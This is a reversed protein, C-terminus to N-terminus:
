GDLVERVKRALSTPTFPKQLLSVGPALVGHRAIAEDTYGSMFLVKLNPRIQQLQEALARGSIGPMVVDTLLLQIPDPHRAALELAGQGNSAVLVAYGLEELVRRALERVGVADEVLLITENGRPLETDVQPQDLPQTAERVRPLYIKFTAGQGEESYVWIHGGNQKVIGYVTALGLGTGKGQEKTTFFPEFLHAQVEESMGHGTDSVALLVYEGPQAELHTAVFAEDLSVNATEIMLQGGQPMADRANVALNVIIQEIQAPDAKILWLDPKLSTKMQIYEGIIRSLMGEMKTVIQNLELLEPKIIQKRSFVLLQRVLQAAREGSHLIKDVMEALPDEPLLQMQMLGAFGNIATLLNNFDHAIGATLQGIAEMKQAQQYQEELHKRGTIDFMVGHRYRLQGAEDVVPVKQNLNHLWVMQGDKTMARYEIDLPENGVDALRTEAVVRERDDPHLQKLWLNPDALWEQPSFGLVEEIQPSIYITRSVQGLEVIYTIAPLQEVLTRYRAEAAQLQEEAQKRRTIDRAVVLAAKRRAFELTHSVVAVDIIDGNKLQHRWEGSIQLETRIREINKLLLPIDEAPRIDAIRMQLFEARSYGYYSIAAENVELFALTDLDYVWMPNPNNAFLLRFSAESDRLAQEARKREEIEQTLARNTEELQVLKDELKGVLVANYKKYYVTEEPPPEHWATLTGAEREAIVERLIKVFEDPEMPKVIFREAGLSLALEEDEPETYTATYFIFPINSLQADAKWERCLTFGDMVPMLIDAIIIDPPDRRAIELAEAGNTALVVKYGNGRLLTELMYRNQQEDDVILIKLM